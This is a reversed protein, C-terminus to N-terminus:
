KMWPFMLSIEFTRETQEVGCYGNMNKMMKEVNHLGINTSGETKRRDRADCATGNQFALGGYEETYVVETRVPMSKDAYKEINSVINDMIRNIYEENVRSQRGDSDSDDDPRSDGGSDSSSAPGWNTQLEVTYGREELYATMELLPDYFLSWM